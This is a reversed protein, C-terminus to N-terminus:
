CASSRAPPFQNSRARRARPSCRSRRKPALAAPSECGPRPPPYRNAIRHSWGAMFDSIRDPFRTIPISRSVKLRTGRATPIAPPVALVRGDQARQTALEDIDQDGILKRRRVPGPRRASPSLATPLKGPAKARCPPKPPRVRAGFPPKCPDLQAPAKLARTKCKAFACIANCTPCPPSSSSM